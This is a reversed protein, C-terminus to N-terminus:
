SRLVLSAEFLPPSTSRPYLPVEFDSIKFSPSLEMFTRAGWPPYQSKSPCHVGRHPFWSRLLSTLTPILVEVVFPTRLMVQAPYASSSPFLSGRPCVAIHLLFFFFLKGRLVYVYIFIPNVEEVSSTRTVRRGSRPDHMRRASYPGKMNHILMTPVEESLMLSPKRALSQLMIIFAGQLLRNMLIFTDHLLYIGQPYYHYSSARPSLQLLFRLTFGIRVCSYALKISTCRILCSTHQIRQQPPSRICTAKKLNASWTSGICDYIWKKKM